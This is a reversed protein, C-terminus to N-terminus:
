VDENMIVKKQKMQYIKDNNINTPCKPWGVGVHPREEPKSCHPGAASPRLPGAPPEWPSLPRLPRAPPERPAPPRLEGVAPTRHPQHGTM